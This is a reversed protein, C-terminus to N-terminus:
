NWWRRVVEEAAKGHPSYDLPDNTTTVAPMDWAWWFVGAWWSQGNLSTLLAQYGAAQEAQDPTKSITWSWPATTSGRQSVYGAEAFLVRRGVKSAFAGLDRVIPEWSRRLASVDATPQQSLSWYADIGVLDLADWFTVHQYEDFNAAYLLPGRYRTRVSKVVTLWSARHGSVGALETGVAFEEVQYRAALEVYHNIFRTYSDFWAALDDPKINGRYTGAPAVDLLPKLLVKIGMRHAAEIAFGVSADSPTDGAPAITATSVGNQYWTPNIQVWKAGVSMMQGLYTYMQPTDYGDRSYTPLAFGRQAEAAVDVLPRSPEDEATASSTLGLATLMAVAGVAVTRRVQSPHGTM